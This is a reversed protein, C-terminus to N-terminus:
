SSQNPETEMPPVWLIPSERFFNLARLTVGVQKVPMIPFDETQPFHTVGFQIYCVIDGSNPCDRKVLNIIIENGPQNSEGSSQPVYYGAPYLQHDQYPVVWLPKTAFVARQHVISEPQALMGPYQSNLIKYGVPINCTPNLKTPNIIDWSRAVAPECPGRVPTKRYIFGNGYGNRDSVSVQDCQLVANEAGDVEPDVRLSFIHQHNHATVDKAVKTRYPYAPQQVRLPSTNLIGTLKIELKYTGDLTFIYYFGYNYNVTTVIQSIILRRDRATLSRDDRFDTHKFLLGNDEEHICIANKITYPNGRGKCDCGSRLPNMILGLGYERIDFAQKMEAVSLRYFLPRQRNDAHDFISVDLLVIGETNVLYGPQMFIPLYNHEELLLTAREGDVQHLDVSVIEENNTDVIVTFDLPHAYQNDDQSLQYYPLGQQLRHERGWHKDFGIAWSDFFVKSMDQIGLGQCAKVVEPHSRAIREVLDLDTPTLTPVVDDIKHWDEVRVTNLNVIVEIVSGPSNTDLLFKYAQYDRKQPERLILYNFVIQINKKCAEEQILCAACQIKDLSLPDLPHPYLSVGIDESAESSSDYNTNCSYDCLIKVHSRRPM